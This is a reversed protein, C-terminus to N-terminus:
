GETRLIIELAFLLGPIRDLIIFEEAFLDQMSSGIQREFADVMVQRAHHNGEEALLRAMQFRQLEDWPDAEESLADLVKCTYFSPDGTRRVIDLLYRARSGEVQPDRAKSRLCSDLVTDNFLNGPHEPMQLVARGLGLSVAHRFGKIDM